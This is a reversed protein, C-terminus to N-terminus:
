VAVQRARATSGTDGESTGHPEGGEEILTDSCVVQIKDGDQWGALLTPSFGRRMM